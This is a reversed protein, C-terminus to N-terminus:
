CVQCHDNFRIFFSELSPLAMFPGVNVITSIVFVRKLARFYQIWDNIALPVDVVSDLIIETVHQMKSWYPFFPTINADFSICRLAPLASLLSGLHEEVGENGGENIRISASDIKQFLLLKAPDRLLEHLIRFGLGFRSISLARVHDAPQPVHVTFYM